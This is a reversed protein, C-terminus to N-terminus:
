PHIPCLIRIITATRTRESASLRVTSSYSAPAMITYNRSPAVGSIHTATPAHTRASIAPKVKVCESSHGVRAFSLRVKKKKATAYTSVFAFPLQNVNRRARNISPLVFHWAAAPSPQDISLLGKKDKPATHTHTHSNLIKQPTSQFFPVIRVYSTINEVVM